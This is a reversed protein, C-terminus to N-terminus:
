EMSFSDDDQPAPLVSSTHDSDHHAFGDEGGEENDDKREEVHGDSSRGQTSATSGVSSV